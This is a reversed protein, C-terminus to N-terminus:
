YRDKPSPKWIATLCRGPLLRASSGAFGPVELIVNSTKEHKHEAWDRTVILRDRLGRLIARYPEYSDGVRARLEENCASMSLSDILVEVDRLFLTRLCGGLWCCSRAPLRLRSMPTAM